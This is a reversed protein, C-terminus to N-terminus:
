LSSSTSAWNCLIWLSNIWNLSHSRKIKDIAAKRQDSKILPSPWVTLHTPPRNHMVNKELLVVAFEQFTSISSELFAVYHLSGHGGHCMHCGGPSHSWRLVVPSNYKAITFHTNLNSDLLSPLRKIWSQLSTTWFKDDKVGQWNKCSRKSNSAELDKSSSSRPPVELLTKNAYLRKWFRTLSEFTCALLIQMSNLQCLKNASYEQCVKLKQTAFDWSTELCHEAIDSSHYVLLLLISKGSHEEPRCSAWDDLRWSAHVKTLHNRNHGFRCCNACKCTHDGKSSSLAVQDKHPLVKVWKWCIKSGIRSGFVPRSTCLDTKAELSFSDDASPKSQRQDQTWTSTKRKLHKLLNKTTHLHLSWVVAMRKLLKWKYKVEGRTEQSNYVEFKTVCRLSAKKRTTRLWEQLFHTKMSKLHSGRTRM